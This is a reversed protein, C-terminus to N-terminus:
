EWRSSVQSITCCATEAAVFVPVRETQSIYCAWKELVSMQCHCRGKCGGSQSDGRDEGRKKMRIKCVCKRECPRLNFGHKNFAQERNCLYTCHTHEKFNFSTSMGLTERKDGHFRLASRMRDWAESFLWDGKWSTLMGHISYTNSFATGSDVNHNHLHCSKEHDRKEEPHM